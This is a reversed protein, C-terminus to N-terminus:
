EWLKRIPRGARARGGAAKPVLGKEDRKCHSRAIEEHSEQVIEEFFLALVIQPESGILLYKKLSGTDGMFLSARNQNFILFGFLAGTLSFSMLALSDNGKQM